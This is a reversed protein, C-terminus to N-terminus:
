LNFSLIFGESPLTSGALVRDYCEQVAEGGLGRATKVWRSASPYFEILENTMRHRLENEGLDEDRLESYKSVVFIKPTPGRIDDLGSGSSAAKWDTEGASISECLDYGLTDFLRTFIDAKGSFDIFVSRKVPLEAEIDDYLIVKEFNQSNKAFARGNPSTLGIVPINKKGLLWALAMATKCSASSVIVQDADFYSSGKLLDVLLYASYFLPRFLLQQNEYDARYAADNAIRIYRNYVAPLYDRHSAADVFGMEDVTDPKFIWGSASPFFGYFREGEEIDDNRSDEVTAFGWAPICGWGAQPMPFFNWYKRSEGHLAYAINSATFAFAEISLLVEGTKLEREPLKVLRSHQFDTKDVELCEIQGITM